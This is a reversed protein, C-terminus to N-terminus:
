GKLGEKFCLSEINDILASMRRGHSTANLPAAERKATDIMELITKALFLVDREKQLEELTPELKVQEVDTWIDRGTEPNFGDRVQIQSTTNEGAITMVVRYTAAM